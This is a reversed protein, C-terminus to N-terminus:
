TGERYNYLNAFPTSPTEGRPVCFEAAAIFTAGAHRTGENSDSIQEVLFWGRHRHGREIPDVELIKADVTYGLYGITIEDGVVM